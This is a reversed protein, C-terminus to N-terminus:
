YDSPWAAIVTKNAVDVEIVTQKHWPILREEADLSNSNAAVRMLDHAGTEFMETIDGLYENQENMVRMGVLDSWYYEDEATESLINQAVWITVGNMTEAVNRDPVQEFQAVLGTGQERWAKVTLPRIGTATKMWWPQIDFIAAHEDTDSFVWLWGKIGYPKKLQGIKMLASADPVPSM